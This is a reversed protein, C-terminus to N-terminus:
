SGAASAHVARGSMGSDGAPEAYEAASPFSTTEPPRSLPEPVVLAM